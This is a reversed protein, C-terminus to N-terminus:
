WKHKPGMASKTGYSRDSANQLTGYHPLNKPHLYTLVEGSGWAPPGSRTGTRWQKNLINAAVMLM